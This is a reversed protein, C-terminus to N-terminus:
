STLGIPENSLKEDLKHLIDLYFNVLKEVNLKQDDLINCSSLNTKIAVEALRLAIEQNTM